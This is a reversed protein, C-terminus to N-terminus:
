AGNVRIDFTITEAGSGTLRPVSINGGFGTTTDFGAKTIGISVGGENAGIAYAFRAGGSLTNRYGSILAGTNNTAGVNVASFSQGSNAFPTINFIMRRESFGLTRGVPSGTYSNSSESQFTGTSSNNSYRGGGLRSVYPVTSESKSIYYGYGTYISGSQAINVGKVVGGIVSYTANSPAGGSYLRTDIYRVGTSGCRWFQAFQYTDTGTQDKTPGYTTMSAANSVTNGSNDRLRSGYNTTTSGTSGVAIVFIFDGESAVVPLDLAHYSFSKLTFVAQTFNLDDVANGNVSGSKGRTRHFRATSGGYASVSTMNSTNSIQHTNNLTNTQAGINGQTGIYESINVNLNEDTGGAAAGDSLSTKSSPWSTISTQSHNNTNYTERNHQSVYKSMALGGTGGSKILTSPTRTGYYVTGGVTSSTGFQGSLMDSIKIEGSTTHKLQERIDSFRIDSPSTKISM